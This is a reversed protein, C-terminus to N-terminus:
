PRFYVVWESDFLPHIVVEFSLAARQYQTPAFRPDLCWPFTQNRATVTAPTPRRFTSLDRLNSKASLKRKDASLRSTNSLNAPNLSELRLKAIGEISM